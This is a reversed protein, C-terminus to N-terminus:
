PTHEMSYYIKGLRMTEEQEARSSGALRSEQVMKTRCFARDKDIQEVQFLFGTENSIRLASIQFSCIM